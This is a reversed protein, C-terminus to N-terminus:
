HDALTIFGGFLLKDGQYVVASQGPSLVGSPRALTLRIRGQEVTVSVPTLPSLYRIKVQETGNLKELVDPESLVVDDLYFTTEKLPTSSLIIRGSQADMRRIFLRTPASIGLGKRQGVTYHLFGKHEGLVRGQEDVFDGKPMAGGYRELYDDYGEGRIFCIEQSEEREAASLERAKSASFVDKKCSEGLPLLLRSLVQQPLRYLVYSQDKTLDAARYLYAHGNENKIRAYHGTAIYDFGEKRAKEALLHFKVEANCLICPNPTRGNRYERDFYTIIREAFRQTCDVVHLPIGVEKAANTAAEVETYEHMRLVAGEVRHGMEKLLAATYTSDVGGSMGVLIKM